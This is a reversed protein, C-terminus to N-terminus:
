AKPGLRVCEQLFSLKNGPHLGYPVAVGERVQGNEVDERVPM